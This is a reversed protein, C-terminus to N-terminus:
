RDVKYSELTIVPKTNHSIIVRLKQIGDDGAFLGGGLDSYPVGTAPAFPVTTFDISYNSDSPTIEGYVAHAVNYYIYTQNKVYELQSRALSEATTREDALIIAKSSGSLAMLFGSAIIGMLAIAIVIEILTSGKENKMPRIM